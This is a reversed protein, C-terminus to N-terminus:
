RSMIRWIPSPINRLVLYVWRLIGPSWVIGSKRSQVAEVIDAAVAEPTTAFPQDDLGTTMATRVFGPRVCVVQVGTKANADALGRAFADLGAKTSGYTFNASRARVAAVSSLIVLCGSGAAAMNRAIAASVASCGVTNVLFGAATEDASADFDVQEGLIGAAVVAVDWRQNAFRQTVFPEITETDAVDLPWTSVTAGASELRAIAALSRESAPDRMALGVDIAGAAVLAEATAVGIDSTGGIVLVSSPIGFADRVIFTYCARKAVAM